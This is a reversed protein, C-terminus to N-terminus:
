RRFQGDCRRSSAEPWSQTSLAPSFDSQQSQLSQQSQVSQLSALSAESQMSQMGPGEREESGDRGERAERGDRGRAVPFPRSAGQDMCTDETDERALVSVLSAQLPHSSSSSSSLFHPTFCAESRDLLDM